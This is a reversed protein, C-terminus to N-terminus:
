AAGEQRADKARAREMAADWDIDGSARTPTNKREAQLRMQDYKERLKPMSLINSRWFEDNQCWNIAVHIEQPNRGDRDIMLRAADHWTKGITPRKSGNDEIRNALHECLQHVDDRLDPLNPPADVADAPSVVNATAPEPATAPAPEPETETATETETANARSSFGDAPTDSPTHRPTDSPTDPLAHFE